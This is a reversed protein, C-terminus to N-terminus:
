SGYNRIVPGTLEITCSRTVLEELPLALSFNTVFGRFDMTTTSTDALRIRYVREAGTLFDAEMTAQTVDDADFLMSFTISGSNIFGVQKQSTRDPSDAATADVVNVSLGEHSFDKLGSISTFVHTALAGGTLASAAAAAVGGGGGSDGAKATVLNAAAANSNIAAIVQNATSTPTSTGDTALNVTIANGTVSISLPVNNSVSDVFAVTINNGTAGNKRATVIVASTGAGYTKSARIGDVGSGDGRLLQAGYGTSKGM